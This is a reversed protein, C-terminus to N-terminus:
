KFLNDFESSDDEETPVDPVTPNPNTSVPSDLELGSIKAMDKETFEVKGPTTSASTPMQMSIPAAPKAPAAGSLRKYIDSISKARAVLLEPDTPKAIYGDAGGELASMENLNGTLLITGVSNLSPHQRIFDIFEQGTQEPMEQDTIVLHYQKEQLIELAKKATDTADVNFYGSVNLIHRTFELTVPSDDVLLINAKNEDRAEEATAEAAVQATPQQTEAPKEEEKVIEPKKETFAGMDSFTISSDTETAPFAHKEAPSAPSVDSSAEEKEFLPKTIPSEAEGAKKLPMVRGMRMRSKVPFSKNSPIAALIEELSTTGDIAKNFGQEILTLMGEYRATEFLEPGSAGQKILETIPESVVLQETLNITGDYGNNGCADCGNGTQFKLHEPIQWQAMTTPHIKATTKCASCLKRIVKHTSVLKLTSALRSRSVGSRLIKSIAEGIDPATLSLLILCGNEVADLVAPLTERDIEDIVVIDANKAQLAKLIKAKSPGQPKVQFQRAGKIKLGVIDEITFIRKGLTTAYRTMVQLMTSKGSGSPGTVLIIGPAELVEKLQEDTQKPLGLGEITLDNLRSDIIHIVVREGTPTQRFSYALIYLQDQYKVQCRSFQDVGEHTPPDIKALRMMAEVMAKHNSISFRFLNYETGDLSLNVLSIDQQPEISLSTAGSALAKSIITTAFKKAIIDKEDPSLESQSSGLFTKKLVVTTMLESNEDPLSVGKRFFRYYNREFDGMSVFVAQVPRQFIARIEDNYNLDLPDVMGIVVQDGHEAVPLFHLRRALEPDSLKMMRHPPSIRNLSLLPIKYHQALTETIAECSEASRGELLNLLISTHNRRSKLKAEHIDNASIIGSQILEQEAEKRM